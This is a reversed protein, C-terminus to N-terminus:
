KWGMHRYEKLTGIAGTLTGSEPSALYRILLAVERPDKLIRDEKMRQFSRHVEEGLLDPHLARIEEQMPTDMVGPDVANVQINIPSLEESLSRTLQILGAKSVAYACFRPYPMRGLGSVINIIKGGQQEKMAPLVARIFHVAGNLNVDLTDNWSRPDGEELFSAPGIIAANNVLADIRGFQEMTKSVAADVTGTNSVDGQLLLFRGEYGKLEQASKEMEERRLSFFVVRAGALALSVAVEKGLGRGAGTV